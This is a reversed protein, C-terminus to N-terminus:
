NASGAPRTLVILVDSTGATNASPAYGGYFEASFGGRPLNKTFFEESFGLPHVAGINGFASSGKNTQLRPVEIVLIGRPALLKKFKPFIKSIEYGIHELTHATFIIDFKEGGSILEDLSPRIDM